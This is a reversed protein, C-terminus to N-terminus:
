LKNKMKRKFGFQFDKAKCVFPIQFLLLVRSMMNDQLDM